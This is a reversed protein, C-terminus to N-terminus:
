ASYKFLGHVTIPFNGDARVAQHPLIADPLKTGDAKHPICRRHITADVNRHEDQWTAEGAYGNTECEQRPAPRM